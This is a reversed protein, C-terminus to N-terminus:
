AADATDQETPEPEAAVPVPAAEAPLGVYRATFRMPAEARRQELAHGLWGTCRGLLKMALPADGPLGLSRGLAALAFDMNPASGTIQSGARAIERVDDSMPAAQMLSRARPDGYPHSPHGFGPLPLGLSLRQTIVTRPDGGSRRMEQIFLGAQLAGGTDAPGSLAAVGALLCAALSGGSAAVARVAVTSADVADDACLVLARRISDARGNELRWARALRDHLPGSRAAGCLADVLDTLLAAAERRLIADARGSSPPDLAARGALLAMARARPDAGVMTVPHPPLRAFPDDEAGESWLLRAVGELTASDALRVADRGRHRVAANTIETLATDFLLASPPAAAEAAEAAAAPSAPRRRAFRLLSAALVAGDTDRLTLLGRAAYAKLAEVKVGLRAAAEDAALWAGAGDDSVSNVASM